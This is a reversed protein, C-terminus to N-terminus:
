PLRCVKVAGNDYPCAFGTSSPAELVIWTVGFPRLRRLREVDSMTELGEQASQGANWASALWPTIAAEGGDKSYDPLASREAIARFCQADEQTGDLVYHANLAFVAGVPTNVRVWEFATVWPNRSAAYPWEVHASAPFTARQAFWMAGGLVALMLGWRWAQRKLLRDGVWAGLLLIMVEYVVQFSRLPQLRAVMHNGASRHAFLLAVLLAMLGLLLGARALTRGCGPMTRSMWGLLLLPAVLGMGEFWRWSGLFWYDRTMAARLYDATEVPAGVRIAGALLLAVGVLIACWTRRGTTEFEMVALVSLVAAVGYGAMLPHLLSAGVLAAGCQLAARGEGSAGADVAWAMAMLVLPTSLSRATLYPDALMLATGAIPLTLWCALLAMAGAQAAASRTFRRAVIWGGYLTAWISGCYLALLVYELRLHTLRVLWAVMPGFLSFRLHETVFSTQVPYLAPNLLKRVGAVYVGGDEAFPHYGHVALAFATLLLALWGGRLGTDREELGQGGAAWSTRGHTRIWAQELKYVTLGNCQDRLGLGDARAPLSPVIM